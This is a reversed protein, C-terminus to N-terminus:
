SEWPYRQRVEGSFAEPLILGLDTTVANASKSLKAERVMFKTEEYIMDGPSYFNLFDGDQWLDGNDYRRWGNLSLSVTVAMGILRGINTVSANKLNGAESDEAKMVACRNVNNRTLEPDYATISKGRGRRPNSKVMTVQSYRVQGNYVAKSSLYPMEGEKITVTAIGQPTKRFYLKGDVTSSVVFGRLQALETLVAYVEREADIDVVEAGSFKAGPADDFEVELDYYSAVRIAIEQLDLGKMSIPWKAPPCSCENLVGTKTYGDIKLKKSDATTETEVNVITGIIIRCGGIYIGCPKYKFPRFIEKTKKIDPDFPCSMTFTDAICDFNRVIELDDWLSFPTGDVVISVEDSFGDVVSDPSVNIKLPFDSM